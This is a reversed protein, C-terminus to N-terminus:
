ANAFTPVNIRMRSLQSSMRLPPWECDASASQDDAMSRASFIQWDDWATTGLAGCARAGLAGCATTGLAGWALTGLTGDADCCLFVTPTAAGAVGVTSSVVSIRGGAASYGTGWM